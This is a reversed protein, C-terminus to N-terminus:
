FILNARTAGTNKQDSLVASLGPINNEILAISLESNLIQRTGSVQDLRLLIKFIELDRLPTWTQTNGVHWHQWDNIVMNCLMLYLESDTQQKTIQSSYIKQNKDKLFHTQHLCGPNCNLQELISTQHHLLWLNGTAPSRLMFEDGPAGSALVVSEKWHHIQNYGWFESLKDSNKKWFYDYDIHHYDILEHPANLKKLYSYILLTDVGGSLFVRLLLQNQGLFNKIRATLIQDILHIADQWSVPATEIKGVPDYNKYTVFLNQDCSLIGDTWVTNSLPEINTIRSGKNFWIPFSRWRDTKISLQNNDWVLACFNGLLNPFQQSVIQILNKEITDSETYGKYVVTATGVTTQTWGQDTSVCLNGLWQHDPFDHDESHSISFFM